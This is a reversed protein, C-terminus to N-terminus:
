EAAEPVAAPSKLQALLDVLPQDNPRDALWNEVIRIVVRRVESGPNRIAHEIIPLGVVIGTHVRASDAQKKQQSKARALDQKAKALRQELTKLQDDDVKRQRPM